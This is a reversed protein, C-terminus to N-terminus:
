PAPPLTKTRSNGALCLHLLPLYVALEWRWLGLVCARTTDTHRETYPTCTYPTNTFTDTYRSLATCTHLTHTWTHRQTHPTCTHLTDTQVYTTHKYTHIYIYIYAHTYITKIDTHPIHMYAHTYPTHRHLVHIPTSEPERSHTHLHPYPQVCM